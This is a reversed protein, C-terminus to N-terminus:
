LHDVFGKKVYPSVIIAPVRTERGLCGAKPPTAHNWWGDFADYTTVVRGHKWQPSAKLATPMAAIQCDGAAVNAPQFTREGITM